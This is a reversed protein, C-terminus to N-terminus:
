KNLFNRIVVFFSKLDASFFYSKLDQISQRCFLCDKEELYDWAAKIGVEFINKGFKGFLAACPYLYGDADIFCYGRSLNCPPFHGNFDVCEGKRFIKDYPIEVPYSIINDLLAFSKDIQYGQKKYERVKIWFDRIESTTLAYSKDEEKVVAQEALALSTGFEHSLNLLYELCGINNRNFVTRMQIPINNEKCLKMSEMIKKFSGKGRNLDHGIECGDISHCVVYLKKLDEIRAKTYYGNTAVETLIGKRTIYDIIEGLDTRIMPEGGLITIYRTGLAYLEDVVDFIKEKTLDKVKRNPSNPFCYICKLNCRETIFLGVYVPTRKGMLFLSALQSTLRLTPRYKRNLANVTLM